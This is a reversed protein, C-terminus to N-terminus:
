GRAVRWLQLIVIGTLVYCSSLMGISWAVGDSSWGSSNLFTTFVFEASHKDPSCVWLVTFIAVFACVHILLSMSEVLSLLRSGWINIATALAVLAWYILTGQWREMGYSEHNLVIVGQLM